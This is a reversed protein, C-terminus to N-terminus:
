QRAEMRRLEANLEHLRQTRRHLEDLDKITSSGRMLTLVERDISERRYLTDLSVEVLAQETM